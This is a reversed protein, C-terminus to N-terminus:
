RVNEQWLSNDVSSCVRETGGFGHLVCSLNPTTHIKIATVGFCWITTAITSIEIRFRM